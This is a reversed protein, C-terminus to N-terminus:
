TLTAPYQGPETKANKHVSTWLFTFFSRFWYVAVKAERKPKRKKSKRGSLSRFIKKNGHFINQPFVSKHVWKSRIACCRDLETRQKKYAAVNQNAADGKHAVRGNSCSFRMRARRGFLQFIQATRTPRPRSAVKAPNM